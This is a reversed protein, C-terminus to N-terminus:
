EVQGSQIIIYILLASSENKCELCTESSQKSSPKCQYSVSKWSLMESISEKFCCLITKGVFNLLQLSSYHELNSMAKDTIHPMNINNFITLVVPQV